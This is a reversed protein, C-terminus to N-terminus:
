PREETSALLDATSESEIEDLLDALNEDGAQEEINALILAGLERVTPAKFITDLPMDQSFAERIRSIVQIALLSNGGLEIFDDDIGVKDLALITQLIDALTEQIANEPEVYSTRINPRPHSPRDTAAEPVRDSLKRRTEAEAFKLRAMLNGTSVVIQSPGGSALVRRFADVGEDPFIGEGGREEVAQKAPEGPAAAGEKELKASAAGEGVRKLTFGEIAVLERGEADTISLHLTIVEANAQIPGAHRVHSYLERTLPARVVLRKYSYPLYFGGEGEGSILTTTAVDMMAPHLVLTELDGEFDADLKLHSLAEGEGTFGQQFSKWRPGFKMFATGGEEGHPANSSQVPTCRAKIAEIDHTIRPSLAEGSVKGLVHEQWSEPGMPQKSKVVFEYGGGLPKLETRVERWEGDKMMLPTIFIVDSIVTAQGDAHTHFAERAMELYTTGVLTPLEMIRHEDLVWFNEPSFRTIFHEGGEEARYGDFLPHPHPEYGELPKPAIGFMKALEERSEVAMGVEEWRDWAISLSYTGSATKWRAFADLFTNAACYDVQGVGGMVATLSSCVVFFDLSQERLAHDLALAGEVKPAFVKQAEEETKLQILGGGAVGASHIVGHIAGWRNVAQNVVEVMREQDAVDASEIAIEAGAAEMELLKGLAHHRKSEAPDQLKQEWEERGPFSSRATLVLKARKTLALYEALVLGIGSLGGTILYVGGDRLQPPEKELTELKFGDYTEQWRHKGRYAVPAWANEARTEEILQDVLWSRVAPNAGAPIDISRCHLNPYEQPIIKCPGLLMAKLPELPEEGSIEQMHSSIVSMRLDSDASKDTHAQAIHILSYFGLRRLHNAYAIDTMNEPQGTVNWLHILHTAPHGAQVLAEFLKQYGESEKPDLTYHGARLREFGEGAEVRVVPQGLSKLRAVLAEGYGEHDCFILWSGPEDQSLAPLGSIRRTQKWVPHYYWASVDDIRNPNMNEGGGLNKGASVWYRSREFPYTPLSVRRRKEGAYFAKWDPSIGAIWLEGMANLLFALDSGGDQPHRLSAVIGRHASPDQHLRVLSQLARGPGVELLVHGSEKLLTEVGKSFQVTGRLHRVWYEPDTAERETIWAGTVNSIYPLEPASLRIAKVADRFDDLIPDMMASHFAHSTHLPKGEMGKGRLDTEFEAMAEPTGSVVCLNPANSVALSVGERLLPRIRDPSMPVALMNGSPLSQMLKGRAAILRLADELGMVGALCAAVYEGVSHGIMAEPRIGWSMWLRALAYEVVFVAAQTIETQRLREAAAEDEGEAPFLMDRLDVGLFIKLLLCCEDVTERYLPEERYLDRGMGPYQTGQGPFMFVVSHHGSDITGTIVRKPTREELDAAAEAVRGCVLFRRFAFSARGMQATFAVDALDAEPNEKFYGVYRDTLSELATETKASLMLLQRSRSPTTPQPEPAEELILHVNTGGMGFSSIGARRPTERRPWERLSTNVFFPSQEFDIKPNPTDYNISPPIKENKLSLAAKILGAVGSATDPHGINGKVSGIACYSKKQTYARYAKTLAAIEIPDGLQTGTAHAEVYEITEPNVGSMALAEAIVAAQGDESPATFGVKANGDNNVAFGRIVAYIHDGDAVADKLRKLLVVTSGCGSGTGDAKADFPRCHGDSSLIWGDQYMYGKRQEHRIAVGGALAMDSQYTLLSQCGLAVGLLSTSCASQVTISPGSLNLKYSVRLALFDKANELLVPFRSYVRQVDPNSLVNLVYGNVSEGAFVSVRGEYGGCDYGAEEMAEWACELFVRQQPDMVEAQLNNIEFFHADFMDHDQIYGERRVFLPHQLAKRTRGAKLLEEDPILEVSEVGNILNEWYETPNRAGPLRGSMGIIAVSRRFDKESMKTM